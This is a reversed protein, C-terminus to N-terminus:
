LTVKGRKKENGTNNFSCPKIIIDNNEKQQAYAPLMKLNCTETPWSTEIAKEAERKSCKVNEESPSSGNVSSKSPCQGTPEHCILDRTPLHEYFPANNNAYEVRGRHEGHIPKEPANHNSDAGNTTLGSQIKKGGSSSDKKEEFPSDTTMSDSILNKESGAIGNSSCFSDGSKNGIIALIERSFRNGHISPVKTRKLISPFYPVDGPTM